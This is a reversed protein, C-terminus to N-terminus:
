GRSLSASSIDQLSVGRRRLQRGIMAVFTATMLPVVFLADYFGAGGVGVYFRDLDWGCLVAQCLAHTVDVWWLSLFTLAYALAPAIYVRFYLLVLCAVSFASYINLRQVEESSEWRALFFTVALAVFWLVQLRPSVKGARRYSWYIIASILGPAVVALLISPTSFYSLLYAYSEILDHSM